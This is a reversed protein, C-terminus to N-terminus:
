VASNNGLLTQYHQAHSNPVLAGDWQVVICHSIIRMSLCKWSINNWDHHIYSHASGSRQQSKKKKKEYTQMHLRTHVPCQERNGRPPSPVNLFALSRIPLPFITDHERQAPISISITFDPAATDTFACWTWNIALLREASARTPSM